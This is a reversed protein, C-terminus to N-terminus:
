LERIHNLLHLNVLQPFNTLTKYSTSIFQEQVSAAVPPSNDGEICIGSRQCVVASTIMDTLFQHSFDAFSNAVVDTNTQSVPYEGLTSPYINSLSSSHRENLKIIQANWGLM